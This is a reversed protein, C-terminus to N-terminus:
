RIASLAVTMVAYSSGKGNKALLGKEERSMPLQTGGNDMWVQSLFYREGVRHFM